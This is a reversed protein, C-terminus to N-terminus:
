AMLLNKKYDEKEKYECEKANSRCCGMWEKVNESQESILKYCQLFLRIKSQQPKFFESLIKFMGM